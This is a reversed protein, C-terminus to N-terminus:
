FAGEDGNMADLEGDSDEADPDIGRMLKELRELGANAATSNPNLSIAMHFCSLAESYQENLTYVHALKTHLTDLNHHELSDRLLEVCRHPPFCSSALVRDPALSLDL